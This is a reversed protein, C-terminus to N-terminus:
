AVIKLNFIQFPSVVSNKIYNEKLPASLELARRTEFMEVWVNMWRSSLNAYYHPLLAGEVVLSVRDKTPPDYIVFSKPHMPPISIQHM